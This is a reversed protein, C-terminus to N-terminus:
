ALSCTKYSFSSRIKPFLLVYGTSYAFASVIFTIWTMYASIDHRFFLSRVTCVDAALFDPTLLPYDAKAIDHVILVVSCFLPILTFRYLSKLLDLKQKDGSIRFSDTIGKKVKRSIIWTSFAVFSKIAITKITYISLCVTQVTTM